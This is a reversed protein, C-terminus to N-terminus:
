TWEIDSYVCEYIYGNGSTGTLIFHVVKDEISNTLVLNAIGVIESSTPEDIAFENEEAWDCIEKYSYSNGKKM